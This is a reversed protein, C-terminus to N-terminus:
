FAFKYQLLFFFHLPLSTYMNKINFLPKTLLLILDRRVQWIAAKEQAELIYMRAYM